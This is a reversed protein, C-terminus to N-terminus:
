QLNKERFYRLAGSHLPATLGSRAMDLEDLENLTPDLMRLKDINGFIIKLADHILARDANKTTVLTTRLGFTTIEKGEPQYAAAPIVAETFYTSDDVLRVIDEGTAPIIGAGCTALAEKVLPEPHAAAFVAADAKGDCLATLQDKANLELVSAFEATTWGKAGLVANMLLRQATDPAGINVHRNKLDDLAAIGSSKRAVLTFARAQASFLSRLDKFAKGEFRDRGDYAFAQVDSMVIAITQQETELAQLNEAPGARTQTACLMGHEPSGGNILACIATGLTQGAMDGDAVGITISRQQQAHLPAAALLVCACLAAFVIRLAFM